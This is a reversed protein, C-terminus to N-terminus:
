YQQGRWQWRIMAKGYAKFEPGDHTALKGMWPAQKALITVLMMDKSGGTTLEEALAKTSLPPASALRAALVARLQNEVARNRDKWKLRKAVDWAFSNM